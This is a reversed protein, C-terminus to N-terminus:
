WASSTPSLIRTLPPTPPQPKLEAAVEVDLPAQSQHRPPTTTLFRGARALHLAMAVVFSPALTEDGALFHKWRQTSQALQSPFLPLFHRAAMILMKLYKVVLLASIWTVFPSRLNSM